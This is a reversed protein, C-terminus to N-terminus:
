SLPAGVMITKESTEAIRSSLVEVDRFSIMELLM